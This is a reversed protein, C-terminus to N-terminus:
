FKFLFILSSKEIGHLQYFYVRCLLCASMLLDFFRLQGWLM